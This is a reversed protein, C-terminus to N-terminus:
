LGGGSKGTDVFQLIQEERAAAVRAEDFAYEKPAGSRDIELEVFDFRERDALQSLAVNQLSRFIGAVRGPAEREWDHLMQKVQQRQLNDQSGCLNCPILPFERIDAYKVLDRERCYALPRIVINRKDDSRLKPPM